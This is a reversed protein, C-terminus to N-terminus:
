LAAYLTELLHFVQAPERASSWATFGSIDAFMITAAPFLDAIPRSKIVDEYPSDVNEKRKFNRQEGEENEFLRDRVNAPFMATVLDRTRKAEATTQRQLDMILRDLVLFLVGTTLFALVMAITYIMPKSTHYKGHLAETPYVTVHDVCAGADIIEQPYREVDLTRAYADFTPDHLDGYGIFQEWGGILEFSLTAGCSSELVCIVRIDQPLINNFLNDWSTLSLLFGVMTANEEFSDFVPEMIYAHPNKKAEKENDDFAHDFLYDVELAKSIVTQKHVSVIKFLQAVIPDALLNYNVMKPDTPTPAIQWAPAIMDDSGLSPTFPITQGNADLTYIKEYIRPTTSNSPQVQLQRGEHDQFTGHLPDKHQPHVKRLRVGEEVWFQNEVAYQEWAVQQSAPIFPAFAVSISRLSNAYYTTLQSDDIWRM